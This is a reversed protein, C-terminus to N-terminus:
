LTWIRWFHSRRLLFLPINRRSLRETLTMNRAILFLNKEIVALHTQALYKSKCISNEFNLNDECVDLSSHDFGLRILNLARVDTWRIDKDYFTEFWPLFYFFFFIKRRWESTKKKEWHLHKAILRTRREHMNTTQKDKERQTHIHIFKTIRKFMLDVNKSFCPPKQKFIGPIVKLLNNTGCFSLWCCVYLFVYM